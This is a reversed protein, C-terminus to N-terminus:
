LKIYRFVQPKHFSSFFDKKKKQTDKHKPYAHATGVGWKKNKSVISDYISTLTQQSAARTTLKAVGSPKFHSHKARM